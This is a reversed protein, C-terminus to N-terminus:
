RRDRRNLFWWYPEEARHNLPIVDVIAKWGAIWRISVVIAKWGATWYFWVWLSKETLSKKSIRGLVVRWDHIRVFEVGFHSKLWRNLPISVVIARWGVIWRFGFGCPSKLGPNIATWIWIPEVATTFNVLCLSYFLSITLRTPLFVPPFTWVRLYNLNFWVDDYVIPRWIVRFHFSQVDFGFNM